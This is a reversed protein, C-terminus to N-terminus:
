CRAPNAFDHMTEFQQRREVAYRLVENALGFGFSRSERRCSISKLIHPTRSTRNTPSYPSRNEDDSYNDLWLPGRSHHPTAGLGTLAANARRAKEPLHWKYVGRVRTGARESLFSLAASSEDHLATRIQLFIPFLVVPRSNRRATCLTWASPGRSWGGTSLPDPAHAPLATRGCDHGPDFWNLFSKCRGLALVSKQNFITATAGPSFRIIL